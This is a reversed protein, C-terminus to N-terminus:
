ELEQMVTALISGIYTLVCENVEANGEIKSDVRRLTGQTLSDCGTLTERALRLYTEMEKRTQREEQTLVVSHSSLQKQVSDLLTTLKGMHVQYSLLAPDVNEPAAQAAQELATKLHSLSDTGAAGWLTNAGIGLYFDREGPFLSQFDAVAQGAITVHHIRIGAVQHADFQIQWEPWAVQLKKLIEDVQKGDTAGVGAVFVRKNAPSEFLEAFVDVRHGEDGILNMLSILGHVLSERQANTQEPFRHQIAEDLIPRLLGRIEKLWEMRNTELPLTAKLVVIPNEHLLVNAFHSPTAACELITTLLDTGPLATLSVEGRGFRQPSSTNITWSAQMRQSEVLFREAEHLTARMIAKRLAFAHPSEKKRQRTREESQTQFLQFSSRRLPIGEVDNRIEAVIDQKLALNPMLDRTALPPGDPLPRQGTTIWANNKDFLLHAPKQGKELIEYRGEGTKRVKLDRGRLGALFGNKEGTLDKIPVRYDYSLEGQSFVMDVSIQESKDVGDTFAEILDQNLKKWQKQLRPNPSLQILWKLKEEVQDVSGIAIRLRPASGGDFGPVPLELRDHDSHGETKGHILTGRMLRGPLLLGISPTEPNFLTWIIGSALVGWSTIHWWLRQKAWWPSMWVKMRNIRRVNMARKTCPEDLGDVRCGLQM